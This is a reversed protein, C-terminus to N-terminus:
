NIVGLLVFVKKGAKTTKKGDFNNKKEDDDIDTQIGAQKNYSRKGGLDMSQPQRQM